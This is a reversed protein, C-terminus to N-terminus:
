FLCLGYIVGSTGLQALFGPCLARPLAAPPTERDRHEPVRQPCTQTSGSSQPQRCNQLKQKQLHKRLLPQTIEARLGPLAEGALSSHPGAAAWGQATGMGTVHLCLHTQDARGERFRSDSNRRNRQVRPVARNQCLSSHSVCLLSVLAHPDSQAEKLFCGWITKPHFLLAQARCPM